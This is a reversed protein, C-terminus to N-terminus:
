IGPIQMKKDNEKMGVGLYRAFYVLPISVVGLVILLFVLVVAWTPYSVGM